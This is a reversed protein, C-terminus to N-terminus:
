LHQNNLEPEIEPVMQDQQDQELHSLPHQEQM